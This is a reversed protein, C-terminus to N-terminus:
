AVPSAVAQRKDPAATRDAAAMRQEPAWSPAAPVSGSAAVLRRPARAAALAAAIWRGMSIGDRRGLAVAVALGGVPLAVIAVVVAPVAPTVARYALWLLAGAAALIAVQRATMGYLVRDPADFDAPVNAEVPENDYSM